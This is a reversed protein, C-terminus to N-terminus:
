FNGSIRVGYQEGGAIGAFAITEPITVASNPAVEDTIDRGWLAVKITRGESWDWEYSITADFVGRDDLLGRPDNRVEVWYEDTYRYSAYVTLLGPGMEATYTGNIGGTWEPVRRLELDSNDTVIGDGTLDAVFDDYEADLYGANANFRLNETAVWTVEAEFGMMEATSANRVVTNSGGFGDPEIIEEQKDDYENYFAALNIRLTQDLFDGKMGAEWNNVFEPDFPGINALNQNRGNFGGSRFGESYSIYTLVDDSVRYDLGIKPTFEDWDENGSAADIPVWVPQGYVFFDDSESGPVYGTGVGGGGMFIRGAYDKEEETYRGGLTLMFADSLNIHVEGFVAWAEREHEAYPDQFLAGDPGSFAAISTKQDLDYEDEVYFFGAVFDFTESLEDSSAFRIEASTQESEQYRLTHFFNLPTADFDTPVSEDTEQYGFIASVTGPGLDYNMNLTYADWEFDIDRQYWDQQMETIDNVDDGCFGLLCPLDPGPNVPNDSNFSAINQLPVGDNEDQFNVYTFLADFKENPEFLLTATIEQNDPNGVDDGTIINTRDSGDQQMAFGLKGSFMDGLPFNIVAKADFLDDSGATVEFRAGLEGTPRTRTINIVGGTTNRGFLTGQPGRLIEISQFDFTNAMSGNVFSLPVGDIVVGVAPDFSREVEQTGVGRIYLSAGAPAVSVADIVVNPVLGEMERVDRMILADIQDGSFATVAVSVDQMSETVKRATVIVEELAAQASVQPVAFATGAALLGALLRTPKFPANSRIM